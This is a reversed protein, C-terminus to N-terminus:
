HDLSRAGHLSECYGVHAAVFRSSATFGLTAYLERAATNSDAVLLTARKYGDAAAAACADLILRRAM